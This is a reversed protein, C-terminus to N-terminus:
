ESVDFNIAMDSSCGDENAKSAEAAFDFKRRSESASVTANLCSAEEVSHRRLLRDFQMPLNLGVEQWNTLQLVIFHHM